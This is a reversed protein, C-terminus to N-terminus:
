YPATGALYVRADAAAQERSSPQCMREQVRSRTVSLGLSRAHWLTILLKLSPGSACYRQDAV